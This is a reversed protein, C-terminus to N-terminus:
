QKLVTKWKMKEERQKHHHKVPNNLSLLESERNEFLDRKINTLYLSNYSIPHLSRKQVMPRDKEWLLSFLLCGCPALWYFIMPFHVHLVGRNKLSLKRGLWTQVLTRIKVAVTLVVVSSAVMDLSTVDSVPGQPVPM